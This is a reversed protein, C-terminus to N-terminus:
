NVGRPIPAVEPNVFGTVIPGFNKYLTTDISNLVLPNISYDAAQGNPTAPVTVVPKLPSTGPAPETQAVPIVWNYRCTCEVLGYGAKWYATQDVQPTITLVTPPMTAPVVETIVPAKIPSLWPIAVDFKASTTAATSAQTTGGNALTGNDVVLKVLTLATANITGTYPALATGVATPINVTFDKIPGAITAVQSNIFVDVSTAGVKNVPGPLSPAFCYVDNFVDKAFGVKYVTANTYPPAVPDVPTAGNTNLFSITLM